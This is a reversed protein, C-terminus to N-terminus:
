IPPLAALEEAMGGYKRIYDKGWSGVWHIIAVHMNFGQSMRWNYNEHLRYIEHKEEYILRSLAHQDSWFQDKTDLITQAWKAILPDGCSYLVVGSNYLMEDEHINQSSRNKQIQAETEKALFLGEEADFLSHLPKLVECDLDLWLTRKFPTQLFAFPKKFWSHLSAIDKELKVSILDGRKQCFTKGFHSLGLDVFAVPFDNHVRYRSWWWPLLWEINEDAAVLVGQEIM